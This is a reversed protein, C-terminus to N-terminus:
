KNLTSQETKDVKMATVLKILQSLNKKDVGKLITTRLLDNAMIVIKSIDEDTLRISFMENEVITTLDSIFWEACLAKPYEKDTAFIRRHLENLNGNLRNFERIVSKTVM